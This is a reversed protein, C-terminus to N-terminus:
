SESDSFAALLDLEDM